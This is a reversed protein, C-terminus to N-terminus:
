GAVLMARGQEAAILGRRIPSRTRPDGAPTPPAPDGRTGSDHAPELKHVDISKFWLSVGTWTLERGPDVVAIKAQIPFGKLVFSFHADVSVTTNLSVTRIATDIMPWAPLNILLKWVQEVPAQIYIDSSTKVPAADDIYGKKAYEEHLVELPPGRYFVQKLM